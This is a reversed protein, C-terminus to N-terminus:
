IFGNWLGGKGMSMGGKGKLKELLIGHDNANYRM